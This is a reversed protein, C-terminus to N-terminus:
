VRADVAGALLESVCLVAGVRRCPAGQLMVTSLDIQQQLPSAAVPPSRARCLCEGCLEVYAQLNGFAKDRRIAQEEQLRRVL